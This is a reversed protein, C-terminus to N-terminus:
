QMGNTNPYQFNKLAGAMNHTTVTHMSRSISYVRGTITSPLRVEIEGPIWRPQSPQEKM